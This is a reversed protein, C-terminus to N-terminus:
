IIILIEPGVTGHGGWSRHREGVAPDLELPRGVDDGVADPLQDDGALEGVPLAQGREVEEEVLEADAARRHALRQPHELRLPQDGDLAATDAPRDDVTRRVLRRRVRHREHQAGAVGVDGVDGLRQRDQLPVARDEACSAGIPLAGDDAGEPLQVLRRLAEDVGVLEVNM